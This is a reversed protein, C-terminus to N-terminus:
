ESNFPHEFITTLARISSFGIYIQQMNPLLKQFALAFVGLIILTDQNFGSENRFFLSVTTLIFIALSEITYRPFTNFFIRPLVNELKEIM